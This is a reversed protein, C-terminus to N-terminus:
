DVHRAAGKDASQALSAYVRLAASVARERNAPRWGAAEARARALIDAAETRSSSSLQDAQSRTRAMLEDSERQSRGALEEAQEEATRLLQEIRSGLGSYTPRASEQLQRRAIQLESELRVVREDLGAVERRAGALASNLDGLRQDVQARDYGRMVIPFEDM